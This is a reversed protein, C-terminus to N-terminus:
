RLAELNFDTAKIRKVLEPFTTIALISIIGLFIGITMPSSKQPLNVYRIFEAIVLIILIIKVIDWFKFGSIGGDFLKKLSDPIQDAKPISIGLLNAFAVWGGRLFIVAEMFKAFLFTILFYVVIKVGLGVFDYGFKENLFSQGQGIAERAIITQPTGGKKIAQGLVQSIQQFSVGKAM